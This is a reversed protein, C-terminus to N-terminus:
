DLDKFEYLVRGIHHHALYPGDAGEILYGYSQHHHAMYAVATIEHNLMNGGEEQATSGM